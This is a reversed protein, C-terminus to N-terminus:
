WILNLSLNNASYKNNKNYKMAEHSKHFVYKKQEAYGKPVLGKREIEQWMIYDGNIASGFNVIHNDDDRISLKKNKAKSFQLTEYNLKYQKAKAQNNNM